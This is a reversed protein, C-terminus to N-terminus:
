PTMADEDSPPEVFLSNFLTWTDVFAKAETQRGHNRLEEAVPMVGYVILEPSGRSERAIMFAIVPDRSADLLARHATGLADKEKLAEYLLRAPELELAKEISEIPDPVQLSSEMEKIGNLACSRYEEFAKEMCAGCLFHSDETTTELHTDACDAFSVALPVCDARVLSLARIAAFLDGSGARVTEEAIRRRNLDAEVRIRRAGKLHESVERSKRMPKQARSTADNYAPTNTPSSSIDNTAFFYCAAMGGAFLLALAFITKQKM